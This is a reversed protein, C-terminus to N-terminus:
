YEDEDIRPAEIIVEPKKVEPLYAWAIIQRKSSARDVKYRWDNEAYMYDDTWIIDEIGDTVYILVRVSVLDDYRKPLLYRPDYWTLETVDVIEHNLNKVYGDCDCDDYLCIGDTLHADKDHGCNCLTHSM